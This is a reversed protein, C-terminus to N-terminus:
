EEGKGETARQITESQQKAVRRSEEDTMPEKGELVRIRNRLVHENTQMVTLVSELTVPKDLREFLEHMSGELEQIREELREMEIRNSM